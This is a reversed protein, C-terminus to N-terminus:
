DSDKAYGSIIKSNGLFQSSFVKVLGALQKNKESVNSFADSKMEIVIEKTLYDVLEGKQKLTLSDININSYDM